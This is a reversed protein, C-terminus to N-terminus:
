RPMRHTGDAHRLTPLMGAGRCEPVDGLQITRLGEAGSGLRVERRFNGILKKRTTLSAVQRFTWVEPSKYVKPKMFWPMAHMHQVAERVRWGVQTDGLAMHLITCQICRADGANPTGCGHGCVGRICAYVGRTTSVMGRTLKKQLTGEPVEGSMTALIRAIGSVWQHSITNGDASRIRQVFSPDGETAKTMGPELLLWGTQAFLLRFLANGEEEGIAKDSIAKCLRCSAELYRISNWLQVAPGKGSFFDAVVCARQTRDRFVDPLIDDITSGDFRKCWVASVKNAVQWKYGASPVFIFEFSVPRDDKYVGRTKGRGMPTHKALAIGVRGSGIGFQSPGAREALPAGRLPDNM